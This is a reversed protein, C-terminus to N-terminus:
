KTSVEIKYSNIKERIEEKTVIIIKKTKIGAYCQMAMITIILAILFIHGAKM